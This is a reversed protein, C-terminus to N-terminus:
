HSLVYHNSTSSYSFGASLIFYQSHDLYPPPQRLPLYCSTLSVEYLIVAIFVDDLQRLTVVGTAMFLLISVNVVGFATVIWRSTVEVANPFLNNGIMGISITGIVFMPMTLLIKSAEHLLQLTSM